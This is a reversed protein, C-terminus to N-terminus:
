PCSFRPATGSPDTCRSLTATLQRSIPFATGTGATATSTLLYVAVNRNLETTTTVTCSVSVAIGAFPTGVPVAQTAFCAPPQPNAPVLLPDNSDPDMVQVLGWEIGARAASYARTGSVDLAQSSQQLGFVAVIFVGLLALIVLLFLATVLSFGREPFTRSM